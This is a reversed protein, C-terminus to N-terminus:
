LAITGITRSGVATEGVRMPETELGDGSSEVVDWTVTGGLMRELVEEVIRRTRALAALEPLVVVLVHRLTSEWYPWPAATAM